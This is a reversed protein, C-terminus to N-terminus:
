GVVVNVDIYLQLSAVLLDYRGYGLFSFIWLSSSIEVKEALLM